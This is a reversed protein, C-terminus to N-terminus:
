TPRPARRLWAAISGAACLGLLSVFATPEPAAFVVNDLYAHDPGSHFEGRIAFFTLNELVLRIEAETALQNTSSRRWGASTDLAVTQTTWTQAPYDAGLWKLQVGNGRIVVDGVRDINDPPADFVSLWIDYSISSGYDASHDGHYTAPALFYWVTSQVRDQVRFSGAPNGFDASYSALGDNFEGWGESDSDFTSVVIAASADTVLAVLGFLLGAVRAYRLTM